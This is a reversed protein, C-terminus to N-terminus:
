SKVQEGIRKLIRLVQYLDNERRQVTFLDSLAYNSVEQKVLKLFRFESGNTTLGFVPKDLNLATVMYVLAQPIAEKLSFGAEKSEIALVWFREQLVLIDIRGRVLEDEDELSIQVPTETRVQFPPSYFGAKSLLPSLMVLKVIEESKPYQELYLFDAKVRNLLQRESDTLEPLLEQWESFFQEDAAQQLGFKSKVEHLTLESAQIAQTM